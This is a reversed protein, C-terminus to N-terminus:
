PSVTGLVTRKAGASTTVAPPAGLRGVEGTSEGVSEGGLSVIPSETTVALECPRNTKPDSVRFGPLPMTNEPVETERAESPCCAM